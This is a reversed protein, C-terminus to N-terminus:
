QDAAADRADTDAVREHDRRDIRGLDGGRLGTAREARQGVDGDAEADEEAVHGVVQEGHQRQDIAPAGHQPEARERAGREGDAHERHGLRRPPEDHLSSDVLREGNEPALASRFVLGLHPECLDLGRGSESNVGRRAHGVGGTRRMRTAARPTCKKLWRVPM